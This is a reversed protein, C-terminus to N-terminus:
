QAAAPGASPPGLAEPEETPPPQLPAAPPLKAQDLPSPARLPQLPPTNQQSADGDAPGDGLLPTALNRGSSVSSARSSGLSAKLDPLDAPLAPSPPRDEEVYTDQLIDPSLPCYSEQSLCGLGADRDGPPEVGSVGEPAGSPGMPCQEASAPAVEDQVAMDVEATARPKPAASEEPSEVVMVAEGKESVHGAAMEPDRYAPGLQDATAHVAPPAPLASPAAESEAEAVIPPHPQPPPALAATTVADTAPAPTPPDLSVPPQSQPSPKETVPPIGPADDEADEAALPSAATEPIASDQCVTQEGAGQPAELLATAFPPMSDPTGMVCCAASPCRDALPPTESAVAPPTSPFPESLVSSPRTSCVGQTQSPWVFHLGLSAGAASWQSM